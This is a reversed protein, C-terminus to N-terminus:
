YVDKYSCSTKPCEIALFSKIYRHIDLPIVATLRSSNECFLQLMYTQSPGLCAGSEDEPISCCNFM